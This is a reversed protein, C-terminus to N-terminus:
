EARLASTPTVRAARRAPLWSALLTVAILLAAGAAFTAPDTPEVDYLVGRIVRTAAVAAVTGVVVGILALRAGGRVVMAVVDGRDAGLAMRVGIEHTRGAVSYAVVGYLGVAALCLALGGLLSAFTVLMRARALSEAVRENMPQVTPPPAGPTAARIERAVAPALAAPDGATRVHLTVYRFAQRPFRYFLTPVPEEAVAAQRMDGVVGVIETEDDLKRGVPDVGPFYRRALARNVLVGSTNGREVADFGRGRLLPVGLTAFYADDVTMFDAEVTEALTGREPAAVISTSMRAGSLPAGTALSAGRVGPLGRVRELLASVAGPPPPYFVPSGATTFDVPAVLLHATDFGPDVARLKVLSRVMLGAGTVLVVALAVQGVVLIGPLRSRGSRPHGDKLMRALDLRSGRLAPVLGFAFGALLAVALTFALVGADLSPSLSALEPVRRVLAIGGMALVVGGAAGILALVTSETLMQRVLRGRAAGVSARIAMERRRRVARALLLNAVNACAILLVVGVAAMLLTAQEVRSGRADPPLTFGALTGAPVIVTARTANTVPFEAALQRDVLAVAARAREMEVGPKLRGYVDAFTVNRTDIPNGRPELAARAALPIWLQPSGVAEFVVPADVVGVVTFPHGDLSLTRGVAWPSGGFRREWMGRSIVAVFGDARDDAPALLRGAFPRLGLVAFFDGTVASGAVMEVGDGGELRFQKSEEAALGSFVTARARQEAFDPISWNTFRAETGTARTTQHLRVLRGPEAVPLPRILLAHAASFVVTNAGVGLAICLAAATTFGPSRALTRAAYRLDQWVAGM